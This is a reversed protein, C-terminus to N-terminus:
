PPTPPEGVYAYTEVEGGQDLSSHGGETISRGTDTASDQGVENSVEETTDSGGDGGTTESADVTTSEETSDTTTGGGTRVSTSTQAGTVATTTTPDRESTEVRQLDDKRIMVEFNFDITDPLLVQVINHDRANRIGQRVRWLITEIASPIDEALIKM